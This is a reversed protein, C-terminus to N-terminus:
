SNIPLPKETLCLKRITHTVGGHNNDFETIFNAANIIEPHANKMAYSYTAAGMMEVDNLYDGFVLTEEKTIGLRQQLQRLAHGKNASHNTIDLYLQGGVAVKLHSNYKEFHKLSNFEANSFDCMTVKLVKDEVLTLDDVIKFRRYYKRAEDLFGVDNNEVYAGDQCCLILFADPVKRGEAILELVDEKKISDIHLVEDRFAVYSGNEAIFYTSDRLEYFEHQLTYYQRGSAVAFVIGRRQLGAAIEFFDPPLQKADNLLSGDM